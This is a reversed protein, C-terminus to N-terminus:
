CTDRMCTGMAIILELDMLSAMKINVMMFKETFMILKEKEM